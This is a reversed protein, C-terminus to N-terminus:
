VSRLVVGSELRRDKIHWRIPLRDAVASDHTAVVLAAGSEAVNQLLADILARGTDRDLQGTPEDALILKPRGILARAVGARQAQGGSVEEPLKAAVDTLWLEELRALAAQAADAGPMGALLLPLAVNEHVTLPPLLSPGQFAVAIAGPRLESAPGLAPWEISGDSPEDLGAILHLLTTKGSGSPGVLAIRDGPMIEFSAERLAVVSADGRGFVRQANSARVLPDTM